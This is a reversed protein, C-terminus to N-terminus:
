LEETNWQELQQALVGLDLERDLEHRMVRIADFGRHAECRHGPQRESQHNKRKRVLGEPKLDKERLPRIGQSWAYEYIQQSLVAPVDGNSILYQTLRDFQEQTMSAALSHHM